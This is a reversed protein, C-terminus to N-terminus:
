YIENSALDKPKAVHQDNIWELFEGRPIRIHRGIKRLPILGLRTREYVWSRPVRLYEAVENVTLLEECLHVNM